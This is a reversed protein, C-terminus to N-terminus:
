SKCTLTKKVNFITARSVKMIEIIQKVKRNEKLLAIIKLNRELINEQYSGNEM